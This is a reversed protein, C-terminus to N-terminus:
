ASQNSQCAASAHQQQQPPQKRRNLENPNKHSSKLALPQQTNLTHHLPEFYMMVFSPQLARLVQQETETVVQPPWPTSRTFHLRSSSQQNFSIQLRPKICALIQSIQAPQRSNKLEILM